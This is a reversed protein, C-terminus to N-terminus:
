EILSVASMEWNGPVEGTTSGCESDCGDCVMQVHIAKNQWKKGGNTPQLELSHVWELLRVCSIQTVWYREGNCNLPNPCDTDSYIPIGVIDGERADM